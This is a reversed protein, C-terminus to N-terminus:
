GEGKFDTKALYVLVFGGLLMLLKLVLGFGPGAFNLWTLFSLQLGVFSLVLASFGFVVLLFGVITQLNKNMM